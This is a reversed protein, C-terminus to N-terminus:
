VDALRQPGGGLTAFVMAPIGHRRMPREQLRGLPRCMVLSQLVEVRGMCWRRGQRCLEVSGQRREALSVQSAKTRSCIGRWDTGPGLGWLRAYEIRAGDECKNGVDAWHLPQAVAAQCSAHNSFHWEGWVSGDAKQVCTSPVKGNARGSVNVAKTKKCIGIWNTGFGLGWLRAFDVRRSGECKTGQNAWHTAADATAVPGLSALAIVAALTRHIPPTM